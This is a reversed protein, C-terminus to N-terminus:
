GPDRFERVKEEFLSRLQPVVSELYDVQAADPEALYRCLQEIVSNLQPMEPAWRGYEQRM